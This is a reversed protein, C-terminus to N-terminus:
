PVIVELREVELRANEGGNLGFEPLAASYDTPDTVDFIQAGQDTEITVRTSLAGPSITIAQPVGSFNQNAGLSDERRVRISGGANGFVVELGEANLTNRSLRAFRDNTTNQSLTPHIHFRVQARRMDYLRRTMVSCYGTASTISANTTNEYVCGEFTRTLYRLDFRDDDLNPGFLDNINEECHAGNTVGGNIPGLRFRGPNELAMFAGVAFSVRVVGVLKPGTGLLTFTADASPASEFLTNEGVVRIRLFRNAFLNVPEQYYTGSAGAINSFARLQGGGFIFGIRHDKENILVLNAEAGIQDSPVERTEFTVSESPLYYNVSQGGSYGTTNDQLVVFFEGSLQATPQQEFINFRTPATNRTFDHAVLSLGGCAFPSPEVDAGSVDPNSVDEGAVDEGAVDEGAVDEGAVDALSVDNVSVDVIGADFSVDPRNVDAIVVDPAQPDLDRTIVVDRAPVSVDVLPRLICFGSASCFQESFCDSEALCPTQSDFITCANQALALVVISVLLSRVGM